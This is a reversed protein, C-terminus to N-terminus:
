APDNGNGGGAPPRNGGSRGGHNREGGQNGGGPRRNDRPNNGRPPRNQRESADHEQPTVPGRERKTIDKLNIRTRTGDNLAIDVNQSLVETNIVRGSVQETSVIDGKHPLGKKNDKYVEDEFRLCCMLRGCHGSIKSPDLTSKQIKAMRMTVPELDKIFTRCCLERGCHEYDSLMRAEDRVGIQRMEIRTRYRRALDKVLERFDVRGEALFYYIIKDSGFLHEIGALKMDMKREDIRDSCYRMEEPEKNGTIHSLINLDSETAKRIVMGLGKLSGPAPRPRYIVKGHDIGRESKMIVTDGPRLDRECCLFDALVGMLGYRVSVVYDSTAQGDPQQEEQSDQADDGGGCGASGCCRGCGGAGAEQGDGSCGCGCGERADDGGSAADDQGTSTDEQADGGEPAPCPAADNEGNDNDNLNM